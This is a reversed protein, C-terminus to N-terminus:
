ITQQALIPTITDATLEYAVARGVGAIGGPFAKVTEVGQDDIGGIQYGVDDGLRWDVGLRPAASTNATMTVATQGPTLQALVQRAYDVLTATVTISTSPQFVYEVIPRGGSSAATQTGSTPTTEGEGSSYATVRTAGKGDSYDEVAQATTICGPMDFTAAPALGAPVPSGIRDGVWLTPVLHVGDAAWTWEVTWEPGALIGSLEQLRQYVKAYDEVAYTRDRVVGTGATALATVIPMGGVDAVYRQILDTVITNQGTATYTVAGVSRRDFYSEVTAATLDLTDDDTNRVRRNILGAWQIQATPDTDDFAALVAALPRTGREWDEPADELQFQFTATEYQGLTRRLPYQPLLGPLDGLVRCTLADVSVWQLTM